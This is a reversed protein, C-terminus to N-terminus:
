KIIDFGALAVIQKAEMAMLKTLSHGRGLCRQVIAHGVAYGGMKPYWGIGYLIRTSLPHSVAVDQNPAIYRRWFRELEWDTYYATWSACKEAGVTEAVAHEALGEMIVADLLTAEKGGDPLKQLRCVHNYEHAVLAAIEDDRHDSLLFFFLKDAFAVGGKGHFERALKPNEDD